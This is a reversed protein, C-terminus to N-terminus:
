KKSFFGFAQRFLRISFKESDLYNQLKDIKHSIAKLEVQSHDSGRGATKREEKVMALTDAPAISDLFLPEKDITLELRKLIETNLSRGNRHAEAQLHERVDQPLRISFQSTNEDM